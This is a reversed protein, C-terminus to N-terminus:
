TNIAALYGVDAQLAAGHARSCSLITRLYQDIGEDL